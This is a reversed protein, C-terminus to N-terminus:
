VVEERMVRIKRGYNGRSEREKNGKSNGCVVEGANIKRVERVEGDKM